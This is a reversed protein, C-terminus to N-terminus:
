PVATRERFVEFFVSLNWDSDSINFVEIQIFYGPPLFATEDSTLRTFGNSSGFLPIKNIYKHVTREISSIKYGGTGKTNYSLGNVPDYDYEGDKAYTRPVLIPTAAFGYTGTGPGGAAPIVWDDVIDYDLKAVNQMPSASAKIKATVYDGYNGNEWKIYGEHIYTDGYEPNFTVKKIVSPTGPTMHFQLLEGEGINGSVHDDGAGTWVLYFEKGAKVPKSSSHVGLKNGLESFPLETVSVDDPQVTHNNLTDDMRQIEIETLDNDWRIIINNGVTVETNQEISICIPSIGITANLENQLQNINVPIVSREFDNVIINTAIHNAAIENMINIEDTSLDSDWTVTVNNGTEITIDKTVSICTANIQDSANFENKLQDTDVVPRVEINFIKM